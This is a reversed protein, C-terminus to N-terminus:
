AINKLFAYIAYISFHTHVTNWMDLDFYSWYQVCQFLISSRQEHYVVYSVNIFSTLARCNTAVNVHFQTVVIIFWLNKLKKTNLLKDDECM